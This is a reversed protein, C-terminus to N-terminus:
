YLTDVKAGALSVRHENNWDFTLETSNTEPNLTFSQKRTGTYLGGAFSFDYEVKVPKGTVPITINEGQPLPKGNVRIAFTGPEHEQYCYKYCTMKKTVANTITVTRTRKKSGNKKSDATSQTEKKEKIKECKKNKIKEIIEEPKSVVSSLDTRKSKTALGIYICMIASLACYNKANV